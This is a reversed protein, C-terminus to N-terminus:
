LAVILTDSLSLKEELNTHKNVSNLEKCSNQQPGRIEFAM